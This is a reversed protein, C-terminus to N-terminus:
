VEYSSSAGKALGGGAREYADCSNRRFRNRDKCGASFPSVPPTIGAPSAPPTGTMPSSYGAPKKIMISRTVRLMEEPLDGGYDKGSNPRFTLPAPKRLRSLGTEPQPGALTDDWLIDLLGM